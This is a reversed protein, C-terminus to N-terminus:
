GRNFANQWFIHAGKVVGSIIWGFGGLGDVVNGLPNPPNALGSPNQWHLPCHFGRTSGSRPNPPTAKLRAKAVIHSMWRACLRSIPDISIGSSDLTDSNGLSVPLQMHTPPLPPSILPSLPPSPPPSSQGSTPPARIHPLQTLNCM